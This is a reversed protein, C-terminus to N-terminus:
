TGNEDPLGANPYVSVGCTALESLSRVHDTMFEPGTACNLGVSLLELSTELHSVSAYLAEISQGALMTGTPEITGSIMLPVSRGVAANALRIGETAAKLNLTDQATELLLLDVGGRLLAEAQEQFSRVLEPFTVGGTVSITRTTPGMSGAVFRPKDPTSFKDCAQRALEASAINLEAVRDALDYEALVISTSGFSNTEIIDAGAALYAEHVARIVDPRTLVLMENCGEFAAGGFDDATLHYGQIQTGMAGDLVLIREALAQKISTTTDTM